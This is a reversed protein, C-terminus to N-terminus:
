QSIASGLQDLIEDIKEGMAIAVMAFDIKGKCAYVAAKHSVTGREKAVDVYRPHLPLRSM